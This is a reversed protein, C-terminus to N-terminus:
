WLGIIKWWIGGVGLWIPFPDQVPRPYVGQGTLPARHRGSWTVHEAARIKLLLDLKEAFLEDYDGLELGFLPFAETFSGNPSIMAFPLMFSLVPSIEPM